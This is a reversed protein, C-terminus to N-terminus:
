HICSVVTNPPVTFKGNESPTYGKTAICTALMGCSPATKSSYSGGYQGVYGGGSSVNSAEQLCEYRAKMFGAQTGPGDYRSVTMTMCGVLSLTVLGLVAYKKM